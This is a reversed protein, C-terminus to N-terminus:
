WQRNIDFQDAVLQDESNKKYYGPCAQMPGM